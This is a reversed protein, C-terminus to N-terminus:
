ADYPNGFLINDRITGSFIWPNQGVYAVRGPLMSKPGVMEGILSDLLATKGSGVAGIIMHLKGTLVKV